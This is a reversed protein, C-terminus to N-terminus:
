PGFVYAAGKDFMTADDEPTGVVITDGDIAVERGFRDIAAPNPKNLTATPLLPTTSNMDFLYTSGADEAGTDDRYAGVVIRAGSIAVSYGFNDNLGPTPNTLTAKPAMPKAGTLDYVYAVGANIARKDDNPVGIVVLSGSIAVSHGFHANAGPRPNDLTTTPVTPASTTLDFVYARGANLAGMDAFPTGVVIRSGSVAVSWGFYDRKAPNPNDLMAVPRAPRIGDLDYVYARGTNAAGADNKPTGVVVLSGSMAVSFGFNDLEAPSPNKLMTVPVSPTAGSLNYVFVNGSRVPGKNNWPAGVAVRRGSIAVSYGFRGIYQRAPNTLTFIPVTPLASALDYVYASGADFDGTDEYPAGVVMLTGSVAVSFGFGDSGSPGPNNLTLVPIAPTGGTLEYVYASGAEFAVSSDKYAGVVVRSGSIAVSIGFQDDFDPTPNSLTAVAIMPSTSKLDYVYASGAYDAGSSDYRAGVVVRNDSIAVSNGFSDLDVSSPNIFTGVPFTPTASDVDYLYANGGDNGGPGDQVAGVVVRTGSIAVSYGFYEFFSPGHNDLRTVPVTPTSSDLDFVYASGTYASDSSNNPTGVVVRAGSIAVSWGFRDFEAPAPNNLTVVPVSPTSNDLDYIYVSGADMAGTDDNHAGVAVRKGSIAVFVGFNDDDEASPNNLTVVPVTPTASSLDYVYASGAQFAGTSDSSAGVVVRSGSIAVSNGFGYRPLAGPNTLIYRLAGSTADFVKVVGSDESGTDDFPAGVVAYNGDMAVSSGLHAGHQMGVPPAPVALKLPAPSQGASTFAPLLALLALAFTRLPTKM